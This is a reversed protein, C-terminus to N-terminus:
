DFKAELNWNISPNHIGKVTNRVGFGLIGSKKGTKQENTSLVGKPFNPDHERIRYVLPLQTLCQWLFSCKKTDPHPPPPFQKRRCPSFGSTIKDRFM